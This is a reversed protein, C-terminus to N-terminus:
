SQKDYGALRLTMIFKEWTGRVVENERVASLLIDFHTAKDEAAQVRKNLVEIKLRYNRSNENLQAVLEQSHCLKDILEEKTLHSWEHGGLNKSM